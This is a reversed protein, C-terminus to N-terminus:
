FDNAMQSDNTLECCLQLFVHFRKEVKKWGRKNMIERKEEKKRKWGEEKGGERMMVGGGKREENVEKKEVAEEARKECM